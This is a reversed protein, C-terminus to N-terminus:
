KIPEHRTILRNKVIARDLKGNQTVWVKEYKLTVM